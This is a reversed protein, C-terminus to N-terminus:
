PTTFEKIKTNLERIESFLPRFINDFQEKYIIAISDSYEGARILKMIQEEDELTTIAVHSLCYDGIIEDYEIVKINCPIPHLDSLNAM